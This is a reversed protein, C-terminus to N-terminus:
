KNAANCYLILRRWRRSSVFLQNSTHANWQFSERGRYLNTGMAFLCTRITQTTFSWWIIICYINIKIASGYDSLELSDRELFLLLLLLLLDDCFRSFSSIRVTNENKKEGITIRFSKISIDIMLQSVDGRDGHWIRFSPFVGSSFTSVHAISLILSFRKRLDATTRRRHAPWQNKHTHTHTALIATWVNLRMVTYPLFFSVIQNSVQSQDGAQSDDAALRHRRAASSNFVVGFPM